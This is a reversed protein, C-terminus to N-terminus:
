LIHIMIQRLERLLAGTQFLLHMASQIETLMPLQLEMNKTMTKSDFHNTRETIVLTATRITDFYTNENNDSNNDYSVM